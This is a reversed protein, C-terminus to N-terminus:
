VGAAPRKESRARIFSLCKSSIPCSPCRPQRPACVLAGFDMLAQNFYFVHRYPLVAWSVRWLHKAM